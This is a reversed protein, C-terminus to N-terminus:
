SFIGLILNMGTVFVQQCQVERFCHLLVCGGGGEGGSGEWGLGM